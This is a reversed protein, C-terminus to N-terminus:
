PWILRAVSEDWLEGMAKIMDGLFFHPVDGSQHDLWWDLMQATLDYGTNYEIVCGILLVPCYGHGCWCFKNTGNLNQRIIAQMKKRNDALWQRHQQETYSM